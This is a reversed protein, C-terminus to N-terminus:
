SGARSALAPVFLDSWREPKTKISGVAHMFEAYRMVGDPTTSFATDPDRVMRLVEAETMKASSLRIFSQAAAEPASAILANAEDM